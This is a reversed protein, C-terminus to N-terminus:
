RWWATAPRAPESGARVMFATMEALSMLLLNGGQRQVRLLRESWCQARWSEVAREVAETSERIREPQLATPQVITLGLNPQRRDIRGVRREAHKDKVRVEEEAYRRLRTGLDLALNMELHAGIRCRLM